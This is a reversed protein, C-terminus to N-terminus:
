TACQPGSISGPGTDELEGPIIVSLVIGNPNSSEVHDPAVNLRIERGTAPCTSEVQTTRRMLGPLFLTGLACSVYLEKGSLNFHHPAPIQTLVNGVLDGDANFESGGNRMRSFIEDIAEADLGTPQASGTTSVPHGEAIVDLLQTPLNMGDSQGEGRRGSKRKAIIEQLETGTVM